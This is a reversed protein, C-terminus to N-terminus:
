TLHEYYTIDGRIADKLQRAMAIADVGNPVNVVGGCMTGNARVAIFALGTIEGKKAKILM